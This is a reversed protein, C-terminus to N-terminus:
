WERPPPPPHTEREATVHFYGFRARRLGLLSGFLPGMLNQWRERPWKFEGKLWRQLVFKVCLFPVHAFSPAIHWSVEEARVNHFGARRLAKKFRHIDAMEPVAWSSCSIRYIRRLLPGMPESDKRFGDSIVIRGGPKVIRSMELLLDLKDAGGAYCSSEIAYAGDMSADAANTARYDSIVLDVRAGVGQEQSLRNGNEVQWPVITFGTIRVHPSRKAIFRATAGLGCGMDAYQASTDDACGLLSRVEANMQELMPERRLFSMGRVRYGFHMNFQPSWAAYDPGAVEFYRLVDATSSAPAAPTAAPAPAPAPKKPRRDAPTPLASRM